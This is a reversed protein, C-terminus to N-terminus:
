RESCEYEETTETLNGKMATICRGSFDTQLLDCGRCGMLIQHFFGKVAAARYGRETGESQVLAYVFNGAHQAAVRFRGHLVCLFHQRCMRLPKLPNEHPQNQMMVPEHLTTRPSGM